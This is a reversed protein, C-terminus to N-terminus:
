PAPPAFFKGFGRLGAALIQERTLEGKVTFPVDVNLREGGVAAKGEFSYPVPKDGTALPLLAGLNTWSVTVNAPVRQTGRAPVSGNLESRANGVEVGSGVSVKGSVERVVLPFRNPNEVDLELVLVLAAPSISQVQISHPTIRPPEPSCASAFLLSATALLARRM